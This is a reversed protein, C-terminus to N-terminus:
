MTSDLHRPHSTTDEYQNSNHRDRHCDGSRIRSVRLIEKWCVVLHPRLHVHLREIPAAVKRLVSELVCLLLAVLVVASHHVRLPWVPLIKEPSVPFAVGTSISHVAPSRLLRVVIVVAVGACLAFNATVVCLENPGVGRLDAARRNRALIAGSEDDAAVIRGTVVDAFPRVQLRSAGTGLLSSSIIYLVTMHYQLDSRPYPLKESLVEVDTQVEVRLQWRWQLGLKFDIFCCPADSNSCSFSPLSFKSISSFVSSYIVQVVKLSTCRNADIHVFRNNWATVLHTSGWVSYIWCYHEVAITKHNESPNLVEISQIKDSSQCALVIM